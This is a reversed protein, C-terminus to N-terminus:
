ALAEDDLIASILRDHAIVSLVKRRLAARTMGRKSAESNWWDIDGRARQSSERPYKARLDGLRRAAHIVNYVTHPHCGHATAIDSTKKGTAWMDLVSDRDLRVLSRNHRKEARPDGERRAMKVANRVTASHSIGLVDAIGQSTVGQAWLDLIPERDLM